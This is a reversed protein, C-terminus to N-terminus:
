GSGQGWTQRCAGELSSSRAAKGYAYWFSVRGPFLRIVYGVGARTTQPRVQRPRPSSYAGGVRQRAIASLQNLTFGSSYRMFSCAQPWFIAGGNQVNSRETLVTSM